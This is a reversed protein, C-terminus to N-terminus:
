SRAVVRQTGAFFYIFRPRSGPEVPAGRSAGRQGRRSGPRRPRCFMKDRGAMCPTSCSASSSRPRRLSMVLRWSKSMEGPCTHETRSSGNILLIRAPGAPNAHRAQAAIVADRARLWDVAIEYDPDAFGQGARRIVPSKRGAAYADWAAAAIAALENQLPRFVPDAFRSLFREISRVPPM